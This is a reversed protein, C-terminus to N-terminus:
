AVSSARDRMGRRRFLAAVRGSEVPDRGIAAEDALVFGHYGEALADYAACVEWGTPTPPEAMHEFIQGALLVPVADVRESFHYATATMAGRGARRRSRGPM